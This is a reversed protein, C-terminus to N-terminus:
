TETFNIEYMHRANVVVFFWWSVYKYCCHAATLVYEDSILSGGCKWEIKGDEDYGLLAMHPFESLGANKGGVILSEPQYRCQQKRTTVVDPGRNFLPAHVSEVYNASQYEECETFM